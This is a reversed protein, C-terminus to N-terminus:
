TAAKEWTVSSPEGNVTSIVPVYVPIQATEPAIEFMEGQGTFEVQRRSWSYDIGIILVDRQILLGAAANARMFDIDAVWRGLRRDRQYPDRDSMGLVEVLPANQSCCFCIGGHDEM